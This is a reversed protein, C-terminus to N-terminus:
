RSNSALIGADIDSKHVSASRGRGGRSRDRDRDRTNARRPRENDSGEEAPPLAHYRREAVRDEPRDIERDFRHAQDGRKTVLTFLPAPAVLAVPAAIRHVYDESHIPVDFNFVHRCRASRPRSSFDSAVLLQIQGDRFNQLWRRARASTWIAM